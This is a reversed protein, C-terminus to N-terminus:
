TRPDCRIAKLSNIGCADTGTEGRTLQNWLRNWRALEHTNVALARQRLIRYTQGTAVALVEVCAKLGHEAVGGWAWSQNRGKPKALALRAFMKMFHLRGILAKKLGFRDERYGVLIEDLSAFRSSQYTRFMLEQDEMRLAEDRYLHRNFWATKGMWTPHPLYFGALPRRCIQEHKRWIRRTGLVNGNAKFVLIGTGLLDVEPHLELYRVQRELREPYAVDDGDMRAFYKGASLLITENLRSSLGRHRGDSVVRIRPDEFSRAIQVTRDVSGDDVLLLAWNRYTQEQISRIAMRLTRECNWIPM